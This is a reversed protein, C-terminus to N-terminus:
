FLQYRRRLRVFTAIKPYRQEIDFYKFIHDIYFIIIISIICSTIVILGLINLFSVLQELTMSSLFDKYRNIIGSFDNLYNNKSSSIEELIKSLISKAEDLSQLKSESNSKISELIISRDESSLSPDKLRELANAMIKSHSRISELQATVDSSLGAIKNQVSQDNIIMDQQKDIIDLLNNTEKTAQEIRAAKAEKAMIFSQTGIFLGVFPIFKGTINFIDKLRM